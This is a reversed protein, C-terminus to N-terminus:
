IKKILKKTLFFAATGWLPFDVLPVGLREMAELVVTAFLIHAVYVTLTMQGALVLPAFPRVAATKEIIMVSLTVVLLASGMASVVFLPMPEWPEISLWLLLGEPDLGMGELWATRSAAWSVAEALAVMSAGRVLLKRRLTRESFDQRGLWMGALVFSFWPFVPYCGNFLMHRMLGPPDRFYGRTLVTLDWGRDFDMWWMFASFVLLPLVALDLLTRDSVRILCSGLVLYVAYFHLIDAPWLVSNLAGLLFLFLARKALSIRAERIELPDHSARARATLLSLGVGSLVVFTAAGRGEIIGMFTELWPSIAASEDLFVWFNILVMALLAQARAFDYGTIRQGGNM